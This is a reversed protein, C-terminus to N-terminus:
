LRNLHTSKSQVEWFKMYREVAGHEHEKRVKELWEEDPQQQLHCDPTAGAQLLIEVINWYGSTIAANLASGYFGGAANVNAKNDLLLKISETQGSFAAAQLTSGFRGGQANVDIDPCQELLWKTKGSTINIDMVTSLEHMDRCATQLPFGFDGGEINIKAGHDLLWRISPHSERDDDLHWNRIIANLATGLKKHVHNIDIHYNCFLKLMPLMDKKTSPFHLRQPVEHWAAYNQHFVNAGSELLLKVLEVDGYQCALTLPTRGDGDEANVDAGRKLLLEVFSNVAENSWRSCVSILATQGGASKSNVDAGRDVLLQVLELHDCSCAAILATGYAGGKANIDVGRDLLLHVKELDTKRNSCAAALITGHHGGQTTIDAGHNLLLRLLKVDVDPNAYAAHLATEYEGGKQNIEAGREILLEVIELMLEKGRASTNEEERAFSLRHGWYRKDRERSWM